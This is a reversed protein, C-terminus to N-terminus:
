FTTGLNFNFSETKDSSTKQLVTSFVFSMPGIPSNWNAAVGTSSRVKNSNDLSSDYDVGWVNGFDLFLSLDTNSDEPLFNPLNAELNLAAAYNGGIHDSGDVPGVKGREFGRLRNSSLSKRKSLRVDDDIGNVSSLFLKTATVVDESFSFYKSASFTNGIFAKDAYLPLTQNFSIISGDTPMFKRDRKDFSLGYNASIESFEGSQKKLSDSASDLTQLDDYSTALGLSLNIDKYQEFSTLVEATIISNEYGRTPVDNKESRLSYYISNGLFDYNPNLYSFTGSLSEKDVELDFGLQKGEGLYNNEKIGIAFSGGNTGIGAGASIEGTPKEEINIKINKLNDKSGEEVEYNVDKFINRAKLESVSKDLGIKTFPDGEDIILEGRIVSEDTVNNGLIDIREVLNKEGEFINFVISITNEGLNEQVNHEVFQLNNNEILNDIKDLLKKIKFPSHYTGIYEKYFDELPFFIDKDFVSDVNTSIKNIVFREGENISYTIEADGAENIKATKSNIEVNYFGNSRYYNRLLREDLQILNESLSTNKSIVKWFKDEESAIIERLRNSRVSKNGLFNIKKIKTKNGREIEIILDFNDSDIEKVRANVKAFNYGLYSYVNKINEVDKALYSKIFSRKEKLQMSKKIEDKFKNSKEGILILQNLVPHEKLNIILNDKNLTIQVDEFFNTSYLNRIVKNIDAESYDKKLKIDGYLIITEDSIRKNGNIVTNNVIEAKVFSFQLSLTILITTFFKKM